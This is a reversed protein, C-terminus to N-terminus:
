CSRLWRMAPALAPEALGARRMLDRDALLDATAGEAVIGGGDVVIARACLSLAFDMDHTVLALARGADCLAAIDQAVKDAWRADLGAFPEDLVILPWRESSTLTALALRRKQGQSLEFPHRTELGALGWNELIARTRAEVDKPSVGPPLSAAIEDRVSGETFQTEPRQFAM